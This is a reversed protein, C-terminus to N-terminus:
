SFAAGSRDYTARFSPHVKGQVHNWYKAAEDVPLGVESDLRTLMAQQRRKISRHHNMMLTRARDQVDLVATAVAEVVPAPTAEAQIAVAGIAAPQASTYLANRYKLDLTTQLVPISKPNRFRVDLGRYKGVSPSNSLEVVPPNYDYTTGRYTLKM